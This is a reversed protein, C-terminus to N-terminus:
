PFRHRRREGQPCGGRETLRDVGLSSGGHGSHLDGVLNTEGVVLVDHVTHDGVELAVVGGHDPGLVDSYQDNGDLVDDANQSLIRCTFRTPCRRASMPWMSTVSCGQVGLSNTNPTENRIMAWNM